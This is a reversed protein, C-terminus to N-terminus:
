SNGTAGERAQPNSTIEWPALAVTKIRPLSLPGQLRPLALPVMKLRGKAPSVNLRPPASSAVQGLEEDGDEQDSSSRLYEAAATAEEPKGQFQHISVAEQGKIEGRCFPCTQSEFHQPHSPSPYLTLTERDRPGCPGEQGKPGCPGEEGGSPHASSLHLSVSPSSDPLSPSPLAPSVPLPAPALHPGSPCLLLYGLPAPHQQPRLQGRHHHQQRPIGSCQGPGM